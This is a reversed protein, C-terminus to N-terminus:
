RSPIKFIHKDFVCMIRDRKDLIIKSHLFYFDFPIAAHYYVIIAPGTEPINEEM